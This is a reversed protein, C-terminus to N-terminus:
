RREKSKDLINKLEEIEENSLNHEEVINSLMLNLSGNYVKKIFSSYEKRSCDKKSILPYIIHPSSGEELKIAKKNVLRSILTYITTPSWKTIPKLKEVIQISTLPSEDWLIKMVEWESDSIKTNKSM